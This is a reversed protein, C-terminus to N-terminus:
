QERIKGNPGMSELHVTGVLIPKGNLGNIPEAVLLSRNMMTNFPMEFFQCPFKSIIM